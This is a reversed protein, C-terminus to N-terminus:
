APRALRTTRPRPHTSQRPPQREGDATKPLKKYVSMTGDWPDHALQVGGDPTPGAPSTIASGAAVARLSTTRSSPPRTRRPRTASTASTSSSRGLSSSGRRSQRTWTSSSTTGDRCCSRRCPLHTSIRARPAPAGGHEHGGAHRRGALLDVARDPRPHSGLPSRCPRPSSGSWARRRRVGNPTSPRSRPEDVHDGARDGQLSRRRRGRELGGRRRALARLSRDATNSVDSRAAFWDFLDQADQVDRPGDLGFKGGSAAPAALTARSRRRIRVAGAGSGIPEM